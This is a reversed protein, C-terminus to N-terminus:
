GETMPTVEGTVLGLLRRRWGNRADLGHLDEPDGGAEAAVAVGDGHGRRGLGADFVQQEAADGPTGFDLQVIREEGVFRAVLEQLRKWRAAAPLEAGNM